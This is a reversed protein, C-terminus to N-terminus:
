GSQQRVSCYDVDLNPGATNMYVQLRLASHTVLPVMTFTVQTWTGQVTFPVYGAEDKTGLGWLALVGSFATGEPAKLWCSVAYRGPPSSSTPIDQYVSGAEAPQSTNMEAFCSGHYPRGPQDCYVVFNVAASSKSM